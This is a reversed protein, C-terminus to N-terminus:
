NDVPSINVTDELSNVDDCLCQDIFEKLHQYPNTLSDQFIVDYFLNPRFCPTSFKSVPLKLCLVNM